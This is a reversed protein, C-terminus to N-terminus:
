DEYHTLAYALLDAIMRARTTGKRRALEDVDAVIRRPLRTHVAQQSSYHQHAAQRSIGLEGAIHAWSHGQDRRRRVQDTTDSM